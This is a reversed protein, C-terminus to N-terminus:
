PVIINNYITFNNYIKHEYENNVTNDFKNNFENWIDNDINITANFTSQILGDFKDTYIGYGILGAIIVLVMFFMFTMFKFFGYSRSNVVKKNNKQLISNENAEVEFKEAKLKEELKKQKKIIKDIKNNKIEPLYSKDDPLDLDKYEEIGEEIIKKDENNEEM